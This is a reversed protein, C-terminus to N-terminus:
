RAVERTRLFFYGIASLAIVYGLASVVQMGLLSLPIDFGHAVYNVDSFSSFDPLLNTVIRMLFLFVSDMAEVVSRTLGPDLDTTVNRQSVLRVSAEVPGGGMVTGTVVGQIFSTRFGLVLASLSAMMAVAGSLFTSFMVGFSTVLLMQAWISVYSKVFNM